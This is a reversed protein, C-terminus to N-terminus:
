SHCRLISRWPRSSNRHLWRLKQENGSLLLIKVNVTLSIKTTVITQMKVIEKTFETVLSRDGKPRYMKKRSSTHIICWPNKEYLSPRIQNCLYHLMRITHDKCVPLVLIPLINMLFGFRLKLFNNSQIPVYMNNKIIEKSIRLQATLM